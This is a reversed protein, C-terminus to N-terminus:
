LDLEEVAAKIKRILFGLTWVSGDEFEIAIVDASIYQSNEPINAPWVIKIESM